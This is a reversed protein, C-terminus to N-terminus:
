EPELSGGGVEVEELAQVVDEEWTVPKAEPSPQPSPELLSGYCRSSSWTGDRREHALMNGTEPDVAVEFACYKCYGWEDGKM